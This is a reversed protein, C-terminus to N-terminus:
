EPKLQLIIRLSKDVHAADIYGIYGITSETDRLKQLMAADDPVQPPPLALGTFMLRAWYANIQEISRQTLAQYFGARLSSQDIPHAPSGDPFARTRGLFIDQVERSTLSQMPSRAPVVVAVDAPAPSASFLLAAALLTRM